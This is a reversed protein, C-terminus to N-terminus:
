SCTVLTFIFNLSPPVFNFNKSGVFVSVPNNPPPSLHTQQYATAGGKQASVARLCCWKQVLCWCWVVGVGVVLKLLSVLTRVRLYTVFKKTKYVSKNSQQFIPSPPINIAHVLAEVHKGVGDRGRSQLLGGLEVSCCGLVPPHLVSSM